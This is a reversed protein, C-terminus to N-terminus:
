RRDGGFGMFGLGRRSRNDQGNQQNQANTAPRPILVTQGESVGSVIQVHTDTAFGTEVRRFRNGTAAVQVVPNGRRETVAERPLVLVNPLHVVVIDATTT